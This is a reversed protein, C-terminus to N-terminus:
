VNPLGKVYVIKSDTKKATLVERRCKGKCYSVHVWGSSPIKPDYFELIMQDFVIGSRNIWEALQANSMGSTEIDAAEGKCHQSSWSGGIARNVELSRFGSNIRIPGIKERIPELVNVCLQMLSEIEVGSPANSIGNRTAIESRTMEALTFHLSLNM